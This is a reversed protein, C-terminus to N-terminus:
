KSNRTYTVDGMYIPKSDSALCHWFQGKMVQPISRHDEELIQVNMREFGYRYEPFGENQLINSYEVKYFIELTGRDDMDALISYWTFRDGVSAKIKVSRCTQEIIVPSPISIDNLIEWGSDSLKKTYITTDDWIGGIDYNPFKKKWGKTDIYKLIGFYLGISLSTPSVFGVLLTVVYQVFEKNENIWIINLLDLFDSLKVNLVYFILVLIVWVVLCIPWARKKWSDYYDKLINM